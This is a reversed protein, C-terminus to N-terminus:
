GEDFGITTILKGIGSKPFHKKHSQKLWVGASYKLEADTLERFAYVYLTFGGARVENRVNPMTVNDEMLRRGEVGGRQPPKKIQSGIAM